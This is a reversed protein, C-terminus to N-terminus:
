GCGIKKPKAFRIIGGNSFRAVTEAVGPSNRIQRM